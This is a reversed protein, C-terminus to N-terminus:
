DIILIINRIEDIFKDKNFKEAHKQIFPPDM